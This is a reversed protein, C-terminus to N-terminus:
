NISKNKKNLLDKVLGYYFRGRVSGCSSSRLGDIKGM